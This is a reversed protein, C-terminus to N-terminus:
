GKCVFNGYIFARAWAYLWRWDYNSLIREVRIYPYRDGTEEDVFTDPVLRAVCYVTKGTEDQSSWLSFGNGAVAFEKEGLLSDYFARIDTELDAGGFLTFAPDTFEMESSDPSVLGASAMEDYDGCDAPIEYNSHAMAWLLSGLAANLFTTEDVGLESFPFLDNRESFESIARNVFSEAIVEFHESGWEHTAYLLSLSHFYVMYYTNDADGCVCVVGSRASEVLSHLRNSLTSYNDM